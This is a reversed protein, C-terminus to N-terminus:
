FPLEDEDEECVMQNLYDALCNLNHHELRRELVRAVAEWQINGMRGLEKGIKDDLAKARSEIMQEATDETMEPGELGKLKQMAMWWTPPLEEEQEELKKRVRRMKGVTGNSVATAKVTESKSLGLDSCVLRWAANDRETKTMPLKTKTNESLALLTAEAKSCEHLIVPVPKRYGSRKYAAYRHHGDVIVFDEEGRMWVTMPDLENGATIADVLGRVHDETTEFERFQFTDPDTKLKSLPLRKRKPPSLGQKRKNM